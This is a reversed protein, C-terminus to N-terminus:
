NPGALNGSAGGRTAGTNRKPGKGHIDRCAKAEKASRNDDRRDDEHAAVESHVKGIMGEDDNEAAGEGGGQDPKRQDRDKVTERESGLKSEGHSM